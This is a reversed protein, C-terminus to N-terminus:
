ADRADGTVGAFRRIMDFRAANGRHRAMKREPSGRCRIGGDRVERDREARIPEGHTSPPSTGSQMTTSGSFRFRAAVAVDNM